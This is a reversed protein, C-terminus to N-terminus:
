AEVGALALVSVLARRIAPYGGAVFLAAEAVVALLGAGAAIMDPAGSM